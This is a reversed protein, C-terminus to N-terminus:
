KTIRSLAPIFFSKVCFLSRDAPYLAADDELMLYVPTWSLSHNIQIDYLINM